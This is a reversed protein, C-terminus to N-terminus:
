AKKIEEYLSSIIYGVYVGFFTETLGIMIKFHEFNEIVLFYRLLLVTIVFVILLTPFLFSIFAYIRTVEAESSKGARNKIVFRIISITYVSFLPLIIGLTTTMQTIAGLKLFIFIVLALIVFHSLILYIGLFNQLKNIRM